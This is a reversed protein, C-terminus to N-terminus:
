PDQIKFKKKKNSNVLIHDRQNITNQDPPILTAKHTRKYQFETSMMMMTSNAFAFECLMEGNRNTAVHSTHNSHGKEKGLKTNLHSFTIVIDIKPVKDVVYQLDEYIKKM